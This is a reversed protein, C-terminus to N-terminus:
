FNLYENQKLIENAEEPVVIIWKNSRKQRDEIQVVKEQVSKVGTDWKLEKQQKGTNRWQEKNIKWQFRNEMPVQLKNKIESTITEKEEIM